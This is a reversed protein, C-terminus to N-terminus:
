IRGYDDEIRVGRVDPYSDVFWKCTRELSDTFDSYDSEKWGLLEMKRSCSPKSHQGNPKKSDWVINGKFDLMDSVIYAIEHISREKSTGINIPSKESYSELLFLLIEAIDCSYTFERVPSGDGWLVVDGGYLKSEYIKRVIAPIVHSNNLDFNDNEGFINNPIVTIYNCGYQDYYARSQVELMRKAYAYAYNSSHPPGMHIECERLPHSANEPYVCTSLISLVKKVSNKRCAELVNINILSNDRYFDGLNNMNAGVGGVLAALHIVQSPKHHNFLELTREFNRLDCDLSSIFVANLNKRKLATGVLGTGGTILIKEM